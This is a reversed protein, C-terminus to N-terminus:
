KAKSKVRCLSTKQSRERNGFVMETVQNAREEDNPFNEKIKCKIDSHSLPAKVYTVKYRIKGNKTNLDEIDYRSMFKMIRESLLVKARRRERIAAQLERLTDDLEVWTRVCQRFDEFTMDSYVDHAVPVLATSSSAM